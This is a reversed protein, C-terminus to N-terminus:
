TLLIPYVETNSHSAKTMSWTMRSDDLLRLLRLISVVTMLFGCSAVATLV